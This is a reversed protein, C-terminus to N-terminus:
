PLPQPPVPILRDAALDAAKVRRISDAYNILDTSITICGALFKDRPSEWKKGKLDSPVKLTDCSAAIEPTAFTIPIAAHAFVNRVRKIIDLNHRTELGFIGLTESFTIKADFTSLMGDNTFYKEEAGSFKYFAETMRRWIVYRLANDLLTSALIAAGRDNDELEIQRNIEAIHAPSPHKLGLARLNSNVSVTSDEEYGQFARMLSRSGRYPVTWDAILATAM